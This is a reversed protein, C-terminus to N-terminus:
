FKNILKFNLYTAVIANASGLPQTLFDQVARNFQSRGSEPV